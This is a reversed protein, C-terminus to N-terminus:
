GWMVVPLQCGALTSGGRCSCCRALACACAEPQDAACSDAPGRVSKCRGCRVQCLCQQQQQHQKNSSSRQSPQQPPFWGKKTNRTACQPSHKKTFFPFSATSCYFLPSLLPPFFLSSSVSPFSPALAGFVRIRVQVLLLLHLTPLLQQLLVASPLPRLHRLLLLLMVCCLLLMKAAAAATAASCCIM